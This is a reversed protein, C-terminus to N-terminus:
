IRRTPDIDVPIQITFVAGGMPGPACDLRGGHEEVIRQAIALGLGTGDERTSFYPDFIRDMLDTPIGSGNDSVSVAVMGEEIISTSVRVVGEEGRDRVARIANDLLNIIVRRMQEDDFSIRRLNKELSVEVAGGGEGGVRFLAAAAQVANNIDGPVLKLVPLRAFQSFEDVLHRMADVERVIADTGERLVRDDAEDLRGILRRRIRQASLQIPTLPNKIEHAIRKAAESWAAKRQANVLMTMDEIVFVTGIKKGPADEMVSVTVFLILPTGRVVIPIERRIRAVGEERLEGLMGDILAAHELTLVKTYLKELVDEAKVDFMREAARNFTNVRGALDMSIVGTGVNRLVTEIYTRRQENERYAKDLNRNARDLEETMRNFAQVLIGIEDSAESDIRVTLDGSAVKEAGEALLGLPVTIGRALYFGLWVASFLILLTILLLYSLYNLRIPHEQLKMETYGRYTRSLAESKLRVEESFHLSVVVAGQGDPLLLPASARIFEGTDARSVNDVVRGVLASQVLSGRDDVFNQPSIGDWARAVFRGDADFFDVMSLAYEKRIEELLDELEKGKPPAELRSSVRQALVRSRDTLTSYYDRSVSLAGEVAQDVNVNFWYEISDNIFGKAVFFLLITPILSFGVFIIVLRTRLHYGFVRARGEYFLKIANRALLFVLVTLLIININILFFIFLNGGKPDLDRMSKYRSGFFLVLGILLLIVVIATWRSRTDRFKFSSFKM